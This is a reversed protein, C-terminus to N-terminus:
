EEDEWKDLLETISDKYGEPTSQPENKVEPVHPQDPSAVVNNIDSENNIDLEDTDEDVPPTTKTPPIINLSKEFLRAIEPVVSFKAIMVDPDEETVFQNLDYTQELIESLEGIKTREPAFMSADYNPFRGTADKNIILDYGDEPDFIKIGFASNYANQILKFLKIGISMIKVKGVNEPTEPDSVIYVNFLYRFRAKLKTYLDSDQPDASNFLPRLANCIPCPKNWTRLCNSVIRENFPTNYSHMLLTKWPIKEPSERWPLLRVRSKGPPIIWFAEMRSNPMGWRSNMLKETKQPDIYDNLPM